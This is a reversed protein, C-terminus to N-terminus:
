RYVVYLVYTNELKYDGQLNETRFQQIESRSESKVVIVAM